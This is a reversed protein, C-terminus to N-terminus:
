DEKIQEIHINLKACFEYIRAIDEQSYRDYVDIFYINKIGAMSLNKICQQCPMLTCYLDADKCSIGERACNIITNMESHIEWKDSFNKHEERNFNSESFVEDCNIMGSPTGNIGTSIIRGNKVLVSGVKHSVCHSLTSFEKAINLFVKHLQYDTAM